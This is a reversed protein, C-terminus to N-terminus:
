RRPVGTYRVGGGGARVHGVRVASAEGGAAVATVIEDVHEPACVVILGIGMNFTRFM